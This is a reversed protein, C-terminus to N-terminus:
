KVNITRRKPQRNGTKDSIDDKKEDNQQSQVETSGHATDNTTEAAVEDDGDMIEDMSVPEPISKETIEAKDYKKMEDFFDKNFKKAAEEFEKPDNLIRKVENNVAENFADHEIVTHEKSFPSVGYKDLMFANKLLSNVYEATKLGNLKCYEKIDGYLKKDIEM